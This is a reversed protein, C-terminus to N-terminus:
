FEFGPFGFVFVIKPTLSEPPSPSKQTWTEESCFYQVDFIRGFLWKRHGRGKVGFFVSPTDRLTRKKLSKCPPSLFFLKLRGKRFDISQQASGGECFQTKESFRDHKAAKQYFCIPKPDFFPVWFIRNAPFMSWFVHDGFTKKKVWLWKAVAPNCFGGM